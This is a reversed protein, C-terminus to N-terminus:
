PQTEDLVRRGEDTLWGGRPSVGYDILGRSSLQELKVAVAKESWKECLRKYASAWDGFYGYPNGAIFRLCDLTKDGYVSM